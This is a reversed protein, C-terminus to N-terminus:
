KKQLDLISQFDLTVAVPYHDSPNGEREQYSGPLNMKNGEGDTYRYVEAAKVCGRLSPSVLIADIQGAQAPAGDPPFYIHTIRERQPPPRALLDFSDILGAIKWLSDFAPESHLNGNFDGALLIPIDPGFERQYGNIIGSAREVQVKRFKNSEPDGPASRKSKFHTGFLVFLPRAKGRARVILAPLDRSFLPRVAGNYLPNNWTENKHTRHEIDFPLEKKVLFGIDIKRDDNGDILFSNYGDDLYESNFRGLVAVDEVEQLVIIDPGMDLLVRASAKRQWPPKGNYEPWLQKVHRKLAPDWSFEKSPDRMLDRINYSVIKLERIAELGRVAPVPSPMPPAAVSRTVDSLGGASNDLDFAPEEARINLGCLFLGAALSSGLIKRATFPKMKLSGKTGAM